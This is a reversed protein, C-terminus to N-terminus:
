KIIAKLWEEQSFYDKSNTCIDDVKLQRIYSGSSLRPDFCSATGNGNYICVEVIPRVPATGSDCERRTGMALACGNILGINLFLNLWLWANKM